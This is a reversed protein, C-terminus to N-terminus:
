HNYLLEQSSVGSKTSVDGLSFPLARPLIETTRHGAAACVSSVTRLCRTPGAHGGPLSGWAGCELSGAEGRLWSLGQETVRQAAPPTIYSSGAWFGGSAARISRSSGYCRQPGLMPLATSNAEGRQRPLQPASHLPSAQPAQGSATLDSVRLTRAPVSPQAGSRAATRRCAYIRRLPM